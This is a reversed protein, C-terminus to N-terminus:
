LLYLNFMAVKLKANKAIHTPITSHVQMAIFINVNLLLGPSKQELNKLVYVM